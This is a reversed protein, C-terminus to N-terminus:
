GGNKGRCSMSVMYNQILFLLQILPSMFCIRNTVVSNRAATSILNKVELKESWKSLCLLILMALSTM